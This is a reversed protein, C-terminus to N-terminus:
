LLAKFVNSQRLSSEQFVYGPHIIQVYDQQMAMAFTNTSRKLYVLLSQFVAKKPLLPQREGLFMNRFTVCLEKFSVIPM